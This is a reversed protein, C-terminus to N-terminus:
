NMLRRRGLFPINSIVGNGIDNINTNPAAAGGGGGGAKALLESLTAPLNAFAAASDSDIAQRVFPALYPPVQPQRAVPLPM